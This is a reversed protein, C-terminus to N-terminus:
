KKEKSEKATKLAEVLSEVHKAGGEASDKRQDVAEIDKPIGKDSSELNQELDRVPKDLGLAKLALTALKAKAKAMLGAIRKKIGVLKTFLKRILKKLKKWAKKYWKEKRPKVKIGQLEDKVREADGEKISAPDRDAQTEAVDLRAEMTEIESEDEASKIEDESGKYFAMSAEGKSLGAEVDGVKSEVSGTTKLEPKGELEAKGEEVSSQSTELSSKDEEAIGKQEIFTALVEKAQALADELSKATDEDGGKGTSEKDPQRQIVGSAPDRKHQMTLKKEIAGSQIDVAEGTAAAASTEVATTPVAGVSGAAGGATAPVAGALFAGLAGSFIEWNTQKKLLAIKAQKERDMDQKGLYQLWGRLFSAFTFQVLAGIFAIWGVIPVLAALPQGFPFLSLITFLLTLAAALSATVKALDVVTRLTSFIVGFEKYYEYANLPSMVATKLFDWSATVPSFAVKVALRGLWDGLWAGGLTGGVLAAKEDRKTKAKGAMAMGLLGGIVAGGLSGIFGVLQEFFAAAGGAVQGLIEGFSGGLRIFVDFVDAAKDTKLDFVAAIIGIPIALAMSIGTTVIMGLVKGVRAPTGKKSFGAKIKEGGKKIREAIADAAFETYTYEDRQVVPSSQPATVARSAYASRDESAAHVPYNPIASVTDGIDDVSEASRRQLPSNATPVGFANALQARQAQLPPSTDIMFQRQEQAKSEERNDEFEARETGLPQQPSGANAPSHKQVPTNSKEASAKM